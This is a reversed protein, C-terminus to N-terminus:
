LPSSTEEKYPNEEAPPLKSVSCQKLLLDAKQTFMVITGKVAVNDGVQLDDVTASHEKTISCYVVGVKGPLDFVIEPSSGGDSLVINISSVTGYLTFVKGTFKKRVPEAATEFFDYLTEVTMTYFYDDDFVPICQPHSERFVVSANIWDEFTTIEECPSSVAGVGGASNKPNRDGGAILLLAILLVLGILTYCLDNMEAKAAPAPSLGCQPCAPDNGSIQTGCHECDISKM